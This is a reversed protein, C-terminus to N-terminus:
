NAQSAFGFNAVEPLPPVADLASETLDGITWARDAITDYTFHPRAASM